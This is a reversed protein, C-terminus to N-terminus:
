DAYIESMEKEKKEKRRLDQIMLQLEIIDQRCDEVDELMMEYQYASKCKKLQKCLKDYRKKESKLEKELDKIPKVIEM